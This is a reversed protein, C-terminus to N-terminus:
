SLSIFNGDMLRMTANALIKPPYENNFSHLTPFIQALRITIYSAETLAFQQGLCIRPGSSFPMYAWGISKLDSWREPRFTNADKGYYETLRHMSYTSYVITQGKQIFIPSIGDPGGGKPLTTDKRAVRLNNPVPPYMRLTEDVVWRLYTCRKMSEFTIDGLNVSDNNGFCAYIEQKLKEWIVPNRSLEFFIFSLLSATTNRGALMISLLEDQIVKPDKTKKVLEYLFIYGDKSKSELEEESTALAKKVYYQTFDQVKANAQRFEKTNILFYFGGAILRLMLYKQSINFAEEFNTRTNHELSSINNETRLTEISEGFLFETSADLTLNHFLPQIDFSIGNQDRVHKCFAQLHPELSQIHAVKEKVFQPKLMLRSHKWREGESAFIGHGLLPQFYQQRQGISFDNFQIAVMAKVNEPNKTQIINKFLVSTYMTDANSEEFSKRHEEPLRGAKWVRLLEIPRRFVNGENSKKIAKCGWKHALFTQKALQVLKFISISLVIVILWGNLQSIEQHFNIMTATLPLM